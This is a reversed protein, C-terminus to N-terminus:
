TAGPVPIALVKQITLPISVRKVLNESEPDLNVYSKIIGM